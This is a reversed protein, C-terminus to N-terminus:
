KEFEPTITATYGARVAGYLVKAYEVAGEPMGMDRMSQLMAEEPLAHYTVPKGAIKSIINAVTTHDLAEPGTLNYEKGTLSNEFASVICRQLADLSEDALHDAPALEYAADIPVETVLLFLAVMPVVLAFEGFGPVVACRTDRRQVIRYPRCLLEAPSM